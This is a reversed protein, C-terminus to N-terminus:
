TKKNFNPIFTKILYNNIDNINTIGNLTEQTDFFVDVINGSCLDIALHLCCKTNDFWNHFSDDMEIIEGFYKSKEQRSHTDEIKLQHSIM